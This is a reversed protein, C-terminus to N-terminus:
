KKMTQGFKQRKIKITLWSETNKISQKIKCNWQNIESKIQTVEM